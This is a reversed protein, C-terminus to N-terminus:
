TLNERNALLEMMEVSEQVFRLTDHEHRHIRSVRMYRHGRKLSSAVRSRAGAYLEGALLSIYKIRRTNGGRECQLSLRLQLLSCVVSGVVFVIHFVLWNNNQQECALYKPKKKNTPRHHIDNRSPKWRPLCM